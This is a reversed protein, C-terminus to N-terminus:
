FIGWLFLPDHVKSKMCMVNFDNHTSKLVIQSVLFPNTEWFLTLLLISLLYNGGGGGGALMIFFFLKACNKFIM